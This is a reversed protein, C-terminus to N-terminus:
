EARQGATITWGAPTRALQYHYTLTQQPFSALAHELHITAEAQDGHRDFATLRSTFVLGEQGGLESFAKALEPDRVISSIVDAKAALVAADLQALRETVAVRQRRDDIALEIGAREPRQTGADAVFAALEKDLQAVPVHLDRARELLAAAAAVRKAELAEAAAKAAAIADVLKGVQAKANATLALKPAQTTLTELTRQATALDKAAVATTVQQALGELETRKSTAARKGAAAASDTPDLRLAEAFSVDAADLDLAALAQEGKARAADRAAIQQALRDAAQQVLQETETIPAYGPAENRAKTVAVQAEAIQGANAHTRADQLLGKVLTTRKDVERALDLTESSGTGLITRAADIETTAAVLDGTKLSQRARNLWTSGEAQDIAKALSAQAPDEPHSAVLTRAETFHSATVLTQVQATLPSATNIPPLTAVVAPAAVPPPVVVPPLVAVPPTVVPGPPTSIPTTTPATTPAVIPPMVPPTIITVPTTPKVPAEGPPKALWVAAAAAVAVATAAIIWPALHRGGGGKGTPIYLTTGHRLRELEAADIAPHDGRGLRELDAVLEAANQYRNEADKQLCKLCVAQYDEPINPDVQRPPIPAVHIHQYIISTPDEGTFPLRGTLFEYLVVGLAYLDTRSDCREGRGQEPSFYSVTGMITGTMTLGHAEKTSRVLGFDMLKVVGRRTLMMNAPKIDRHVIGLEGAAQLGRAAQLVWELALRQNPRGGKRVTVALDDGEVYEMAFYHHGGAEGAGYVKIIHPSDLSAVAKAELQFRSRFGENDSLHPPLVKIAVDRDLSRQRGRYVAGMGGRGLLPGVQFDGWVQGTLVDAPGANGFSADAPITPATGPETTRTMAASNSGAASQRPLTPRTPEDHSTM